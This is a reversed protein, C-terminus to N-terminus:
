FKLFVDSLEFIKIAYDIEDFYSDDDSASNTQSRAEYYNKLVDELYTDNVKYLLEENILPLKKM